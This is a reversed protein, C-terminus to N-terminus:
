DEGFHRKKRSKEAIILEGATIGEPIEPEESEEESSPEEVKEEYPTEKEEKPEEAEEKPPIEEKPEEKPEEVPEEEKEEEEKKPEEAPEEKVEAEPEEKTEEKKANITDVLSKVNEELGEIEGLLNIQGEINELRKSIEEATNPEEQKEEKGEEPQKEEPTDNTNNEDAMILGEKKDKNCLDAKDKNLDVNDKYVSAEKEEEEEEETNEDNNDIMRALLNKIDQIGAMIDELGVENGGEAEEEGLDRKGHYFRISQIESKRDDGEVTIGYIVHVGDNKDFDFPASDVRFDDYKDPNQQRYAYQNPLVEPIEIGGVTGSYEFNHEKLWESAEGRTWVRYKAEDKTKEENDDSMNAKEEKGEGNMSKLMELKDKSFAIYCVECVPKETLSIEKMKIGTVKKVNDVMETDIKAGISVGKFRRSKIGEIAEDDTIEANFVIGKVTENFEWKTTKGVRKNGFESTQEHEVIVVPNSQKSAEKIIDASFYFVGKKTSWEGETIAIGRIILPKTSLTDFYSNLM